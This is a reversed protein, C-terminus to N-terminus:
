HVRIDTNTKEWKEKSKPHHDYNVCYVKVDLCYMGSLASANSRYM